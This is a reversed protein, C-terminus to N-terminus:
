PLRKTAVMTLLCLQPLNHANDEYLHGIINSLYLFGGSNTMGQKENPCNNNMCPQEQLINPQVCDNM